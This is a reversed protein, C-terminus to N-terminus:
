DQGETRNHAAGVGEDRDLVESAGSLRPELREQIQRVADRRVVRDASDERQEVGLRQLFRKASPRRRDRRQRFALNHRDVAFSKPPGKLGGVASCENVHYAGPGRAIPHHESLDLRIVLGVLYGSDWPQQLQQSDLAAKDRDVGHATLFLDGALDDITSGVVHQAHLVILRRERGRDGADKLLCKAVTVKWSRGSHPADNSSHVLTFLM